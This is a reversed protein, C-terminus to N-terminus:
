GVLSGLIFGRRTFPRSSFALLLSIGFLKLLDDIRECSKSDLRDIWILRWVLSTTSQVSITSLEKQQIKYFNVQINFQHKDLAIRSSVLKCIVDDM